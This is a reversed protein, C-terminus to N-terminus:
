TERFIIKNYRNSITLNLIKSLLNVRNTRNPIQLLPRDKNTSIIRAKMKVIIKRINRRHNRRESSEKILKMQIRIRFSLSRRNIEKKNSLNELIKRLIRDNCHSKSKFLETKTITMAKNPLCV